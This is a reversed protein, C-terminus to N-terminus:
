SILIPSGNASIYENMTRGRLVTVNEESAAGSSARCCTPFIKKLKALLSEISSDGLCQNDTTSLVATASCGSQTFNYTAPPAITSISDFDYITDAISITLTTGVITMTILGAFVGGYISELYALLTDANAEVIEIPSPPSFATGNVTIASFYAM